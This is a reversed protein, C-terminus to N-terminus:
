ERKELAEIRAALPATARNIAEELPPTLAAVIAGVHKVRLVGEPDMQILRRVLDESLEM